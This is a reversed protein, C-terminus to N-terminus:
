PKRSLEESEKALSHKPFKKAIDAWLKRAEDKRDLEWLAHARHFDADALYPSEPSLGRFSELEILAERYRGLKNLLQARLVLFDSSIKTIPHAIEWDTINKQAEERRGTSIFEGVSLAFAEDQAPLKKGGTTDTIARQAARYKEIAEAYKGNVRYLDGLRVRMLQAIRKDKSVTAMQELRNAASLDRSYFVILDAELEDFRAAHATRAAPSISRLGTLAQQLNSQAMWRIRILQSDTWVPDAPDRYKQVYADAIRAAQPLTGFVGLFFAYSKLEDRTLGSPDDQGLAEAYRETDGPQNISSAGLGDPPQFRLFGTLVENGRKLQLVVKQPAYTALVRRFSAGTRIMGNEFHWEAKWDDPPMTLMSFNAEYFWFNNYGIYSSYSISPVPVPRKEQGELRTINAKGTHVWAEYPITQFLGNQVWGLVMIPQQEPDVGKAHYYDIRTFPGSCTVTKRPVNNTNAGAGHKGPWGFAYQGNVVVFSADSSQTYLTIQKMGKTNLWGSIRTIFNQGEGYPNFGHYIGSVFGIGDMKAGAASWVSEMKGCSQIAESASALRRTEMLLSVMMPQWMPTERKKGGGFYLYYMQKPDLEKALILATKGETRHFRSIPQAVGKNDTLVVDALEPMTLGCEPLDIAVGAEPVTPYKGALLVARYPADKIAWETPTEKVRSIRFKDPIPPLSGDMEPTPAAASLVVGLLSVLLVM